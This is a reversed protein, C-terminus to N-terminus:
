SFRIVTCPINSAQASAIINKTGASEGDWFVIVEDAAKVMQANRIPGAANGFRQWAAPYRELHFGREQAYREGLRDAGKATGSIITIEHNKIKEKLHEDVVEVLMQYDQFNRSGAIVLKYEKKQSISKPLDKIVLFCILEFDDLGKIENSLFSIQGGGLFADIDSEEKVEIISSIASELLKSLERMDKGDRTEKNFVKCLATNPESKGKCLYRMKDLM